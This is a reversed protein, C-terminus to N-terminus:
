AVYKNVGLIKIAGSKVLMAGVIYFIVVGAIDELVLGPVQTLSAAFTGMIIIGAVVYGIVMEVTGIALAVGTRVSKINLIKPMLLAIVFGMISKIILTPIIWMYWGGLLDALASGVGCAVVSGKKDLVACALFIFANGIHAYGGPIPIKFFMTSLCILAMFLGTITLKKTSAKM